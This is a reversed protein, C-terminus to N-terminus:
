YVGLQQMCEAPHADSALYAVLAGSVSAGVEVLEREDAVAVLGEVVSDPLQAVVQRGVVGGEDREGLHESSREDGAVCAECRSGAVFCLYLQETNCGRLSGARALSSASRFKEARELEIKDESTFTVPEGSSGGKKLFDLESGSSSTFRITSKENLYEGVAKGTSTLGKGLRWTENLGAKECGEIKLEAFAAEDDNENFAERLDDFISTGKYILGSTEANSTERVAEKAIKCTGGPKPVTCKKYIALALNFGAGGTKNEIWGEGELV